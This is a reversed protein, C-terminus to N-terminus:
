IFGRCKSVRRKSEGPMANPVPLATAWLATSATMPGRVTCCSYTSEPDAGAAAAAGAGVATLASEQLMCELAKWSTLVRVCVFM